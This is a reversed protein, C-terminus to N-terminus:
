DANLVQTIERALRSGPHREVVVTMLRLLKGVDEVVLDLLERWKQELTAPEPIRIKLSGDVEDCIIDFERHDRTVDPAFRRLAEVVQSGSSVSPAVIQSARRLVLLANVLAWTGRATNSTSYPDYEYVVWRVCEEIASRYVPAHLPDKHSADAFTLALLPTFYSYVHPPDSQEIQPWLLVDPTVSSIRMKHEKLVGPRFAEALAAVALVSPSRLYGFGDLSSAKMAVHLSVGSTALCIGPAKPVQDWLWLADSATSLAHRTLYEIGASIAETLQDSRLQTTLSDYELKELYGLLANLVLATQFPKPEGGSSHPWGGNRANQLGLLWTVAGEMDELADLRARSAAFIAWSAAITHPPHNPGSLWPGSPDDSAARVIARYVLDALPERYEHLVQLAFASVTISPLQDGALSSSYLHDQRRFREVVLDRLLKTKRTLEAADIM